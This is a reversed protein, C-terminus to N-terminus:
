HKFATWPKAHAAVLHNLERMRERGTTFLFEKIHALKDASDPFRVAIDAIEQWVARGVAIGSAGAQGTIQTLDHFRDYVMGRSLLIWPITAHRSIDRSVQEWDVRTSRMVDLPFELKLIDVLPSLQDITKLTVSVKDKHSYEGLGYLIPEILFIVKQEQCQRSLQHVLKLQQSAIPADPHYYLLLKAAAGHAKIDGVGWHPLLKTLRGIQSEDYSSEELSMLIGTGAPVEKELDLGYDLGYVPDILIASSIPAFAEIFLRKLAVVEDASVSSPDQPNLLEFLSNRHDFASITFHGSSTALSSLDKM